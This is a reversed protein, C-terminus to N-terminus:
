RVKSELAAKNIKLPGVTFLRRLRVQERLQLSELFGGQGPLVVLGEVDVGPVARLLEGTAHHFNIPDARIRQRCLLPGPRDRNYAAANLSLGCRGSTASLRPEPLEGYASSLFCHPIPSPSSHPAPGWPRDDALLPRDNSREYATVRQYSGSDRRGFQIGIAFGRENAATITARPGPRHPCHM